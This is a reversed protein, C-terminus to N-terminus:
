KKTHARLLRPLRVTRLLTAVQLLIKVTLLAFIRFFTMLFRCSLVYYVASDSLFSRLGVDCNLFSLKEIVVEYFTIIHVEM